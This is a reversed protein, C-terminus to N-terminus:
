EFDGDLPDHFLFDGLKSLEAAELLVSERCRGKADLINFVFRGGADVCEGFGVVQLSRSGPRLDVPNGKLLLKRVTM